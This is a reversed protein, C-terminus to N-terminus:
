KESDDLGYLKSILQISEIDPEEAANKLKINPWHM